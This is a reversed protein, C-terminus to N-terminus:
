LGLFPRDESRPLGKKARFNEHDHSDDCFDEEDNDFCVLWWCVDNATTGNRNSTRTLCWSTWGENHPATVASQPVTVM